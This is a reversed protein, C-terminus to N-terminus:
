SAARFVQMFERSAMYLSVPDGLGMSGIEDSFSIEGSIGKDDKGLSILMANM